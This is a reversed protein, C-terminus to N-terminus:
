RAGRKGSRKGTKSVHLPSAAAAKAARRAAEQRRREELQAQESQAQEAMRRHWERRAEPTIRVINTGPIRLEQPGNGLRRAKFYSAMCLNEVACFEDLTLSREELPLARAPREDIDITMNLRMPSSSLEREV